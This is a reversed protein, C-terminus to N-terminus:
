DGGSQANEASKKAIYEYIENANDVLDKYEPHKKAFERGRVSRKMAKELAETEREQLVEGRDVRAKMSKLAPIVDRNFRKLTVQVLGLEQETLDSAM